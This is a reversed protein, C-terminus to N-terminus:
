SISAKAPVDKIEKEDDPAAAPGGKNKEEACRLVFAYACDLAALEAEPTADPRPEYSITHRSGM